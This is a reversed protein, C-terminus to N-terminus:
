IPPQGKGLCKSLMTEMQKYDNTICAIKGDKDVIVHRPYVHFQLSDSIYTSMNSVVPYRYDPGTVPFLNPPKPKWCVPLTAPSAVRM